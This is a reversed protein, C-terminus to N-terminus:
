LPSSSLVGGGTPRVQFGDTLSVSLGVLNLALETLLEDVLLVNLLVLEDHVPIHLSLAGYRRGM